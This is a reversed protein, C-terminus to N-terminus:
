TAALKDLREKIDKTAAKVGFAERKIAEWDKLLIMDRMAGASTNIAEKCGYTSILKPLRNGAVNDFAENIVDVKIVAIGGMLAILLALFGFGLTLRTSIKMDIINM